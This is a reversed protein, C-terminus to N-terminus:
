SNVDVPCAASTVYVHVYMYTEYTDYICTCTYLKNLASIKYIGLCM